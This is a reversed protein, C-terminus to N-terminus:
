SYIVEAWLLRKVYENKPQGGTEFHEALRALIFGQVGAPVSTHDAGYGARYQVEVANIRSATAPWAKGPAPVIHGPESDMDVQYDQPDLTQQVGTTDLFKVHEVQLVRARGLKISAPFADLTMRWVQEIIARNAEFEAEATYTRIASEIDADLASKGNIDVDVRAALRAAEMSVALSAPPVVLRAGM